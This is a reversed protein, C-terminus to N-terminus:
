NLLENIIDKIQSFNKVIYDAEKLYNEPLTTQIAIVTMKAAKAARIGLPANEIVLCQDSSLRLIEAAKLYPEPDPKTRNVAEPTIIGSFYGSLHKNVLSQVRMFSGGTVVAMPIRKIKLFNLLPILGDYIQFKDIKDYYKRKEDILGPLLKPDIKYIDVLSKGVREIGSGEMKFFETRDIKIRFRNLVYQWAQYHIEMSNVVVGDFDFLVGKIKM